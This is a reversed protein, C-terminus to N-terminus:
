TDLLVKEEHKMCKWGKPIMIREGSAGRRFNGKALTKQYFGTETKMNRFIAKIKGRSIPNRLTYFKLYVNIKDHCVSSVLGNHELM